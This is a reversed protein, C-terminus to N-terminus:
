ALKAQLSAAHEALVPAPSHGILMFNYGSQRWYVVNMKQRIESEQATDDRQESRTICLAMPGFRADLYTIQAIDYEDYHLMRANKLAAGQVSLAAPTLVIGLSKQVRSLQLQQQEPSDNIDALTQATYLSMYDAVRDRWTIDAHLLTSYRGALLGVALFSVSAALLARRSVGRSAAAPVDPIANLTAQLRGVPADQLMAGFADHFPLSSRAMQALREALVDDHALQREFQARQKASLQNDLYAVLAEDSFPSSLIERNM